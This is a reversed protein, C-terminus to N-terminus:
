LLGMEKLIETAAEVSEEAVFIEEGGKSNGSYLNMVGAYGLDKKYALIGNEKFAELIMEAQLNDEAIYIKVAEQEM